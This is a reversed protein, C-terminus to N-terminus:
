EEGEETIAHTQQSLPQNWNIKAFEVTRTYHRMREVPPGQEAQAIEDAVRQTIKFEREEGNPPPSTMHVSVVPKNEAGYDHSDGGKKPQVVWDKNIKYQGEVWRAFWDTFSVYAEPIALSKYLDRANLWDTM